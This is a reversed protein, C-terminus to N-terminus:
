RSRRSLMSVVHERTAPWQDDVTREPHGLLKLLALGRVTSLATAWREASDSSGARDPGFLDDAVENLERSIAREEASIVKRLAPDRRAALSLEIIAAFRGGSYQEFIVDLAARLRAPGAAAEGLIRRLETTQQQGLHRIAEAVLTAKQPFHNQAAGRSIGARQAVAQSTLAGYGSELLEEVAADLLRRRTARSRDQKPELATSRIPMPAPM